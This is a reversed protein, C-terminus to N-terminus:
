EASKVEEGCFPCAAVEAEGLDKAAQKAAESTGSAKPELTVEFERNCSECDFRETSGAKM